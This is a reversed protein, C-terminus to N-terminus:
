QVQWLFPHEAGMKQSAKHRHTNKCAHRAIQSFKQDVAFWHGDTPVTKGYINQFYSFDRTYVFTRCAYVYM